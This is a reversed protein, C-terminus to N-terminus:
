KNDSNFEHSAGVAENLEDHFYDHPSFDETVVAGCDNCKFLDFAGYGYPNPDKPVTGLMQYRPNLENM